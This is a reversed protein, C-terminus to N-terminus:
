PGRRLAKVFEIYYKRFAKQDLDRLSTAFAMATEAPCNQSPLYVGALFDLTEQGRIKHATKLLDSLSNLLVITQGDSPNCVPLSAIEFPLPVLREYIFTEFGAMTAPAPHAVGNGNSVIGSPPGWTSICQQLFDVALRATAPELLDHATQLSFELIGQLQPSNRDSVFIDQLKSRMITNLFAFYTKKTESHLQRVEPSSVVNSVHTNLPVILENMVDFVKNELKHALHSMFNVFDALETADFHAVLSTMLAPMFQVVHEGAAAFLRAFASRAVSRIAKFVNLTELAVLIAQSMSKFAEVPPPVYDATPAKPYDPYGKAVSGLAGISHHVRLVPLLDGAPASAATQGLGTSLEDLLPQVVSQLLAAHEVPTAFLLSTLLGVSEYLYIQSDFISPNAVADDLLDSPTAPSSRGSSDGDPLVAQPPLVDRLGDILTPVLSPSIENRIDKVFRQFLYFARSQVTRDPNHVGLPGILAELAPVVCEKRVRFFDGYRAVTEFYQLSVTAHPYRAIGSRVLAMMLEGQMTLPYVSYDVAKRQEKEVQPCDCFARRGASTAKNLEGFIFVLYVALEADQWRVEAGSEYMKLTNLSLQQVASSVLEGDMTLIADVFVRLDKRLVEFAQTDDEDMDSPDADADWRMKQLIVTLASTWFQRLAEQTVSPLRNQTKKQSSLLTTMLTFVTSSTDDYNDAMFNLMTPLLEQLLVNFEERMPIGLSLDDIYKILELGYGNVLRGLYERFMEEEEDDEARSAKEARTREELTRLVEGLSLVRFLQLKDSGEKLGKQVMRLLAMSAALRIGLNPNSLLGFLLSITSPTVTLNVDIWPVYSAFARLGWDVVEEYGGSERSVRIREVADAVLALVADNMTAADPGNRVAERIRGDRAHREQTFERASKYLQDHIEGSIEIVTHFFLLSMAPSLQSSPGSPQILSLVDAFFTPWQAPYVRLFFLALVQAVKNRLFSASAEAPGFVFETQIYRLLERKLTETSPDDLTETGNSLFTSIVRLAFLRAQPPHTRSGDPRADVFISLSAPWAESPNIKNLFDVAQLQLARDHSADAAIVIAQVLQQPDM